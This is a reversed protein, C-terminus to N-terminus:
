SEGDVEPVAMGDKEMLVDFRINGPLPHAIHLIRWGDNRRQEIAADTLGMFERVLIRPIPALDVGEDVIGQWMIMTGSNEPLHLKRFALQKRLTSFIHLERVESPTCHYSTRDPWGINIDGDDHIVLGDIRTATRGDPSITWRAAM